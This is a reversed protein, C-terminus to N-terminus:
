EKKFAAWYEDAKKVLEQHTGTSKKNWKKLTNALWSNYFLFLRKKGASDAKVLFTDYNVSVENQGQAVAWACWGGYAPLYDSARQVFLSKNEESSFYYKVGKHEVSIKSSGKAGTAIGKEANKFYAVVDYGDLAVGNTDNVLDASYALQFIFLFTLLAHM